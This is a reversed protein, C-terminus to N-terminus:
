YQFIMIKKYTLIIIAIYYQIIVKDFSYVRQLIHTIM